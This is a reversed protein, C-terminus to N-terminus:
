APTREWSSWGWLGLLIVAMAAWQKAYHLSDYRKTYPRYGVALAGEIRPEEDEQLAPGARLYVGPLVDEAHRHIGVM